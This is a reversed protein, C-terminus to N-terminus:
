RPKTRALLTWYVIVSCRGSRVIGGAPWTYRQYEEPVSDARAYVEIALLDYPLEPIRRAPSAPYGDILSTICGWTPTPAVVRTPGFRTNRDEVRFGRIDRFLDATYIPEKDDIDTYDLFVGYRGHRRCVFGDLSFASCKRDATVIVTDLTPLRREFVLQIEIHGSKSLEVDWSAPAYGLKRAVVTYKGGDLGSLVFRGASDSRARRGGPRAIVDAGPVPVSASDRVVGTITAGAGTQQAPAGPAAAIGLGVALGLRVIAHKANM